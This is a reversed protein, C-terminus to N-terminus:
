WQVALRQGGVGGGLERRDQFREGLGGAEPQHGQDGSMSVALRADTIEGLGDRNTLRSDAVVEFHQVLGAEDGAFSASSPDVVAGNGLPKCRKGLEESNRSVDLAELPRGHRDLWHGSGM